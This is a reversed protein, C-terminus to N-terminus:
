TSSGNIQTTFSAKLAADNQALSQQAWVGITEGSALAGTPITLAIGVGSFAIGGPAALRNAVAGTDDKGTALGINIKASADVTLTVQAGNLQLTAHTNKYFFKEYRVKAGTTASSSDYFLRRTSTVNPELTCITAGGATKAITVTRSADGSALVVKLIREFSQSGVVPTAGNLAKTEIVIGGAADRGTVTCNRTDAGDSVYTVTDAASIDTLEVKGATAIAGGAASADDEPMSAAQYAKLDTAAISM